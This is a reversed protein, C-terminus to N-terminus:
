LFLINNCLPMYDSIVYIYLYKWKNKNPVFTFEGHWSIVIMFKHNHSNLYTYIYIINTAIAIAIYRNSIAHCVHLWFFIMCPSMYIALGTMDIYNSECIIGKIRSAMFCVWFFWSYAHSYIPFLVQLISFRWWDFGFHQSEKLQRKNGTFQRKGSTKSVTMKATKHKQYEPNKYNFLHLKGLDLHRVEPSNSWCVHRKPTNAKYHAM